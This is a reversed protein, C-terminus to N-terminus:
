STGDLVCEWAPPPLVGPATGNVQGSLDGGAVPPPGM